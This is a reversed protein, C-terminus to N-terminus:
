FAISITKAIFFLALSTPTLILAYIISKELKGEQLGAFISALLAYEIIYIQNGLSINAIVASRTLQSMGLGLDVFQIQSVTSLLAGLILPVVCGGGILLTYKEVTTIAAQEKLLEQVDSIDKATQRLLDHFNGGHQYGQLLLRLTRALLKSTTEREADRLVENVSFGKRVQRDMKKFFRGLKTKREGLKSILEEFCTITSLISIYFLAEPLEGEIERVERMKLYHPILMWLLLPVLLVLILWQNMLLTTVVIMSSSLGIKEGKNM